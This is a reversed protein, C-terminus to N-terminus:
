GELDMSSERADEETLAEERFAGLVDAEDPDVEVTAGPVGLDALKEELARREDPNLVAQPIPFTERTTEM